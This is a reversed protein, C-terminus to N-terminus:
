SQDGGERDDADGDQGDVYVNYNVPMSAIRQRLQAADRSMDVHPHEALIGLQISVYSARRTLLAHHARTDSDDLSPLPLDLAEAAATFLDLVSAPLEAPTVTASHQQEASM